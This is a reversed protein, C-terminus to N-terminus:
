DYEERLIALRSRGKERLRNEVRVVYNASNTFHAKQEEDEGIVEREVRDLLELRAQQIESHLFQDYYNLSSLIASYAAFHKEHSSDFNGIESLRNMLDIVIAEKQESREDITSPAPKSM